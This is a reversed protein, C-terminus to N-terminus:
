PINVKSDGESANYDTARDTGKGGDFSDAGAGGIFTDNGSGGCLLDIGDKGNLTDDGNQGFLIDAGDTGILTDKGNGGAQVTVTTTSSAQGDSVTITITASGTKGSVSTITGTRNAGSGGLVVNNVPVLTTNSSSRSLTLNSSDADSLTLKILGSSDSRCQGGAAVAITPADNVANVTITVTAVNSNDIGDNAKYTFSDIGNYDAAPTYTFTGDSNLTLTGHAPDSVKVATLPTGDVDSDNSLVSGTLETDENTSYDDDAAVPATNPGVYTRFHFDLGFFVSTGQVMTGGSYNNDGVTWRFSGGTDPPIVIAYQVGATVPVAPEIPVSIWVVSEPLQDANFSGSGLAQGTPLGSTDVATIQVVAEGGTDKFGRLEVQDLLGSRGATFTQAALPPFGISSNSPTENSQDLTGGQAWAAGPIVLATLVLVFAVISRGLRRM